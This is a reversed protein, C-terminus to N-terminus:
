YNFRESSLMGYLPAGTAAIAGADRLWAAMTYSFRRRSSWPTFWNMPISFSIGQDYYTKNGVTDNANTYTTWFSLQLGSKFYKSSMIKVGIDKALFYGFKTSFGMHVQPSYIYYNLFAQWPHFTKYSPKWGKFQRTQNTFGLGSHDRKRLWAGDVGVAWPKNIPYYLIEAATGGYAYEFYGGATRAFWGNGLNWNKQLFAQNLNIQNDRKYDVLDTRVNLLQSPFLRDVTQINDLNDYVPFGLVVKYYISNFLLGELGGTLSFSYKYKGSSSGFYSEINPKFLIKWWDHKQKYILKGTKKSFSSPSNEIPSLISLEYEGIKKDRFKELVKTQFVYQQIPIGFQDISVIIKDINSPALSALVEGIRDRVTQEQLWKNNIIQLYLTSKDNNSEELRSETLRFGQEKLVYALNQIMLETPRFIGIPTQDIPAYYPLPDKYKPLMGKFDGLNTFLNVGVATEEGRVRNISFDISNFLRYKVGWNFHTSRSRGEPDPEKTYDTADYETVLALENLLPNQSKRFPIWNLGGFFGDINKWGYGISIDANFQTFVQSLVFYYSYFHSGGMFDKNGISFGPLRYDSDEPTIISLKANAMKDSLSGFGYASLIADNLNQYIRYSGSLEFRKFLQLMLNYNLQPPSRTISIAFMGEPATISSPMAFYGTYGYNSFYVPYSKDELLRQKHITELDKILGIANNEEESDSLEIPHYTEDLSFLSISILTLFFTFLRIM